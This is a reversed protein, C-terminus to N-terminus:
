GTLCIVGEAHALVDAIAVQRSDGAPTVFAKTSLEMLNRYGTESQALLALKGQEGTVGPEIVDLTLGTVPQVGAEALAEALELAAFLNEDTVGVAPAGAAAAWKALDKPRIMSQLLSLATRVRLHIFRPTETTM